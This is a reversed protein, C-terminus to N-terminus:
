WKWNQDNIWEVKLKESLNMLENKILTQNEIEDKPIIIVEPDLKIFYHLKTEIMKTIASHNIKSESNIGTIGIYDDFFELIITKNFRNVYIKNSKLISNFYARKVSFPIIILGVVGSISLLIAGFKQNNIYLTSIIILFIIVSIIWFKIIVKTLNIKKKFFYLQMQFFDNEKLKYKLLM